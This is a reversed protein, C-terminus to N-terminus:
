VIGKETKRECVFVCVCLSDFIDSNFEAHLLALAPLRAKSQHKQCAKEKNEQALQTVQCVPM